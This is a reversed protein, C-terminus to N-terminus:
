HRCGIRGVLRSVLWSSWCVVVSLVVLFVSLLFRLARTGTGTLDDLLVVQRHGLPAPGRSPCKGDIGIQAELNACVDDRYAISRCRLFRKSFHLKKPDKYLARGDCSM